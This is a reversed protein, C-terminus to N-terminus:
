ELLQNATKRHIFAAYEPDKRLRAKGELVAKNVARVSVGMLEAAKKAPLLCVKTLILAEAERQALRQFLDATRLDGIADPPDPIPPPVRMPRKWARPALTEPDTPIERWAEPGYELDRMEREYADPKLPESPLDAKLIRVVARLEDPTLSELLLMPTRTAMGACYKADMNYDSLSGFDDGRRGEAYLAEVRDDCLRITARYAAILEVIRQRLWIPLPCPLM